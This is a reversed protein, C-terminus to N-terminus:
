TNRLDTAAHAHRSPIDQLEARAVALESDQTPLVERWSEARQEDAHFGHWRRHLRRDAQMMRPSM